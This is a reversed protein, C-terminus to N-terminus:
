DSSESLEAECLSRLQEDLEALKKYFEGAVSVVVRLAIIGYALRMGRANPGLEMSLDDNHKTYAALTGECNPHAFECLGDFYSRLGDGYKDLHDVATLINHSDLPMATDRSGFLGRMLFVDFEHVSNTEVATDAKKYVLYLMAATEFVARTLVYAPVLKEQEYLDCAADSLESARHLLVERMVRAKYPTKARPSVEKPSLRTQLMCRLEASFQRAEALLELDSKDSSAKERAM